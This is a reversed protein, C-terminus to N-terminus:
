LNKDQTNKNMFSIKAVLEIINNIYADCLDDFM